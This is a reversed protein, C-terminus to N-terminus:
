SALEINSEITFEKNKVNKDEEKAFLDGVGRIQSSALFFLSFATLCVLITLKTKSMRIM